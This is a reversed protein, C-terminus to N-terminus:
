DQEKLFSQLYEHKSLQEYEPLEEIRSLGLSRIFEHTVQYRKLFSAAVENGEKGAEVEQVLGRIMLNRLILSCNVGRIHELETKSIPGRYAIITLTEVQPRTMEGTLEEKLFAAIIAANEAKTALEFTHGQEVFIIGSDREQWRGRIKAVAAEVEDESAGTLEALRRRSLPKNSIFLLSEIQSALSM